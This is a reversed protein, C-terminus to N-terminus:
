LDLSLRLAEDIKIITDEELHGSKKIIRKRDIVRIQECCAISDKEIGGDGKKILVQFPYINKGKADTLPVIITTPATKNGINNQIVVSPRSKGKKETGYSPELNVIVVDGRIIEILSM